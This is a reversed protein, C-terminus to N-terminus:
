ILATHEAAMAGRYHMPPATQVMRRLLMYLLVTSEVHILKDAFPDCFYSMHVLWRTGFSRLHIRYPAKPPGGIGHLLACKELLAVHHVVLSAPRMVAEIAESDTEARSLLAASEADPGEGSCRYAEVQHARVSDAGKSM